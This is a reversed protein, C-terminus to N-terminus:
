GGAASAPANVSLLDARVVLRHTYDGGLVPDSTDFYKGSCTIITMVDRDTAWMVKLSEPDHPDVQFLSSVEYVLQTGNDDRLQIQDGTQLQDLNYFVAPGSWTVHGAFVANGGTGPRASFDYWAVDTATYPVEPVLEADLGFTSVPASIGLKEIVLQYGADALPPPSAPDAPAEAAPFAIGLDVTNGALDVVAPAERSDGDDLAFLYIAAVLLGIAAIFSLASLTFLGLRILAVSRESTRNRKDHSTNPKVAAVREIIFTHMARVPEMPVDSM